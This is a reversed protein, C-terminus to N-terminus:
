KFLIYKGKKLFEGIGSIKKVQLDSFVLGSHTKQVDTVPTRISQVTFTGEIKRNAGKYLEIDYYFEAAEDPAGFMQVWCVWTGTKGLTKGRRHNLMLFFHHGEWSMWKPFWNQNYEFDEKAIVVQTSCAKNFNPILFHKQQHLLFNHYPVIEDCSGPSFLCPLPRYKCKQLHEEEKM